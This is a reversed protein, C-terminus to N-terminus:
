CQQWSCETHATAETTCNGTNQCISGCLTYEGGYTCGVTDGCQASECGITPGCGVETYQQCTNTGCADPHTPLLGGVIFKAATVFSQVKLDELKLKLKKGM